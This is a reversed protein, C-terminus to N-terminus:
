SRRPNVKNSNAGVPCKEDAEERKGETKLAGIIWVLHTQKLSDFHKKHEKLESWQADALETKNGCNVQLECHKNM